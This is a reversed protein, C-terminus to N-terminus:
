IAALRKKTILINAEEREIGIASRGELQAAVLTTGSGAFPDLVTGGVPVVKVLEQMLPTPKGTLHHKDSQKTSFSYCGPFPGADLRKACAGKTAWVIFECQHRFYGKHPARAGSGKNWAAVGRWIWDAGQIADTMAPLMRWDIFVLAYGGPKM